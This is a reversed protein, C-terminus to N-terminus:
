KELQYCIVALSTEADPDDDSAKYGEGFPAMMSELYGKVVLIRDPGAFFIGDKLANGPGRLEVQKVFEGSPDFVDFVAFVDDPLDRIGRGSLAWISGDSRMHLGRQWYAIAAAQREVTLKYDFPAISLGADLTQRFEAYEKDSRNIPKYDREIVMEPRGDPSFVHIAYTDRDPAVCSRGDAGVDFCFFFTPIHERESYHMAGFDYVGKSECYRHTEQGDNDFSSLFYTRNSIGPTDGTSQTLGSMLLHDGQAQCGLLSFLDGPGGARIRGAPLGKGDVLVTTGPFSQVTGVRGDGLVFMDKPQRVEGPGEGEEFLTHSLEGDSSFVLVQSLQSDLVYAQGKGDTCAKPILGFLIEEDDEGGVRWLENMRLAQVGVTPTSGNKVHPVGDIIERVPSDALATQTLLVLCILLLIARPTSIFSM